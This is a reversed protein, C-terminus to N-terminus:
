GGHTRHASFGGNRLWDFRDSLGQFPVFIVPTFIGIGYTGLDQLFWPVAALITARRHKRTFLSGFRAASAQPERGRLGSAPEVKSPYRPVRTLLKLLSAIAADRHGRELLWHPSEVIAFRLAAVITAPIIASAFMWRWASLEALNSLVLYGVLTGFLAGVAQFAFASLILQGHWQSPITESLMLHATPYDCGLALGIGFLCVM